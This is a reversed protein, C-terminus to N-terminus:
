FAYIFLLHGVPPVHMIQNGDYFKGASQSRQWQGTLDDCVSVCENLDLVCFLCVRNLACLSM